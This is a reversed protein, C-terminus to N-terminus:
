IRDMTNDTAAKIVLDLGGGTIPVLIDLRANDRIQNKAYSSGRNTQSLCGLVTMAPEPSVSLANFKINLKEEPSQLWHFM